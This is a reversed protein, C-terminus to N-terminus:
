FLEELERGMRERHLHESVEDAHVARSVPVVEAVRDSIRIPVTGIDVREGFASCFCEVM